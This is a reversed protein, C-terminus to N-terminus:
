KSILLAVVELFLECALLTKQIVAVKFAKSKVFLSVLLSVVISFQSKLCCVKVLLNLHELKLSLVVPAFNGLQLVEILALDAFSGVLLITELSKVIIEGSNM